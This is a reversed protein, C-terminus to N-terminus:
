LDGGAALLLAANVGGFGSNTSLLCGDAIRQASASVRGEARPEPTVLGVTPPMTREALMQLGLAVEIAGAAGLTHGIAGKASHCPLRRDGFVAEIATLEMADNYVTGTGHASIAAVAEPGRDAMALARQIAAILGCGDRAPATVHNADNASGWALLRGLPGTESDRALRENTLLIAAAGEGLVLGARDLDFPHAGDSSLARLVSFGSFVFESVLDAAVVLVADAVGHAIMAGGRAIALTSSACAANINMATPDHVHWCREVLRCFAHGDAAPLSASGSRRQAQFGDVGGKTTATLLRTGAPVSGFGSVLRELLLPMARGPAAQDLWPVCAADAALYNATRFRRVPGVASRGALLGQWLAALDDGFGTVVATKSVYVPKV